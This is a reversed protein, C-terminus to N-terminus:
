YLGMWGNSVIEYVLSCDVYVCVYLLQYDGNNISIIGNYYNDLPYQIYDPHPVCCFCFM